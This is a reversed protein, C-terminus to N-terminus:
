LERAPLRLRFHNKQCDLIGDRKMRSLEASLASRDANLFDALQQRDFPIDFYASHHKQAEASLYALLKERLTRRTVYTLKENLRLNRTALLTVLNDLIRAHFACTHPCTHLLKALSLFLVASPEEARVTVGLAQGPAAAYSEGFVDGPQLAAVLSRSGWCDCHEIMAKGRVLLGVRTLQDGQRLITEGKAFSKEEAQLCGLLSALSPAEIGQFLPSRPLEAAASEQTKHAASPVSAPRITNKKM